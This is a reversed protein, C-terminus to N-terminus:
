LMTLITRAVNNYSYQALIDERMADCVNVMQRYVLPDRAALLKERLEDASSYTLASAYPFLRALDAKRDTLLVGGSAAVDLVRNNIATDFQLGTINLNIGANAYIRATDNYDSTAPAYTIHPSSSRYLLPDGQGYSLDGGYVTLPVNLSNLIEGRLSFTMKNLLNLLYQREVFSSAGQRKQIALDLLQQVPTEVDGFRLWALGILSRAEPYADVPFSQLGAMTHGVFAVTDASVAARDAPVPTFETAHPLFHLNEVSLAALDSLNSREICFIRSRPSVEKLAQYRQKLRTRDGTGCFANDHFFFLLRHNVREFLFQQYVESFRQIYAGENSILYADITAANVTHIFADDDRFDPSFFIVEHGLFELAAKLALNIREYIPVRSSELLFRM